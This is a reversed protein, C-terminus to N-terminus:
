QNEEIIRYLENENGAVYGAQRYIIKGNKIVITYPINIINLERKLDQNKDYLVNFTWGKGNVIGPVRRATRSDDESIAYFDFKSKDNWDDLNENIANLENICPVCWTAWFSLVVPKSAVESLKNTQFVAGDLTTLKVDPLVQAISGLGILMFLCATSIFKSM